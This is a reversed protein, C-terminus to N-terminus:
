RLMYNQMVQTPFSFDRIHFQVLCLTDLNPLHVPPILLRSAFSYMSSRAPAVVCQVSTYQLLITCILYPLIKYLSIQRSSEELNEKNMSPFPVSRARIEIQLRSKQSEKEISCALHIGKQANLVKRQLSAEPQVHGVWSLKETWPWVRGTPRL